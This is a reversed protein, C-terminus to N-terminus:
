SLFIVRFLWFFWCLHATVSYKVQVDQSSPSDHICGSRRDLIPSIPVVVLRDLESMEDGCGAISISHKNQLSHFWEPFHLAPIEQHLAHSGRSQAMYILFVELDIGGGYM